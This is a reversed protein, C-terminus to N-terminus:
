QKSIEEDQGLFIAPLEGMKISIILWGGFKGKDGSKDVIDPFQPPM